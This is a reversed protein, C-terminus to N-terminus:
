DALPVPEESSKVAPRYNRASDISFLALGIWIFGFSIFRHEHFEEGLVLVALLFQISPSLYQLFGLTSLSLRQTAQGFCLLPVATVVGSCFLLLDLGLGGTGLALDSNAHLYFLYGAAVPALFMTEVSLGVLGDVPLKKRFLGYFGFSLAIALAIGPFEGGQITLHVVGACASAIALWQLRRLREGFFVMGLLVSVLPNIFYGLSAQVVQHQVVATIYMFWNCGVLLSTLQLTWRISPTRLAVRLQKWRHAVALLLILFVLSWVVRHALIEPPPVQVLAHFYLPVLGWLGYAIVAYVLGERSSGTAL